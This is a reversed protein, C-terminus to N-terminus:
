FDSLRSNASRHVYNVIDGPELGGFLMEGDPDYEKESRRRRNETNAYCYICDHDCTDYMGIDYNRVCTCGSRVPVSPMSYPIGWRRMSGADICGCSEAGFASLDEGTACHTLRMGNAGAAASAFTCFEERERRGIPRLSGSSVADSLKDYIMLFSFCCRETCGNLTEALSRFASRHFDMDYRENLVVPDYRWIVRGRGVLESLERVRGCVRDPDPVGPEIDRGYPNVTIQFSMEYGMNRLEAFSDMMPGPNKSSFVIMDTDKLTLPIRYVTHRYGPNRTLVYGASIRNMFWRGHFAPIDTRRSASIIM